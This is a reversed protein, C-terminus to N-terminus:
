DSLKQVYSSSAHFVSMLGNRLGKVASLTAQHGRLDHLLKNGVLEGRNLLYKMLDMRFVYRMLNMRTVLEFNDMEFVYRM